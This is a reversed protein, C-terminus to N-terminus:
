GRIRYKIGGIIQAISCLGFVAAFIIDAALNPRYGYTTASVPCRENVETCLNYGAPM